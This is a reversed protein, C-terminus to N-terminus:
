DQKVLIDNAMDHIVNTQTLMSDLLTELKTELIESVREEIVTLQDLLVKKSKKQITESGVQLRQFLNLADPIYSSTIREMFYEEESSLKNKGAEKWLKELELLKVRIDENKINCVDINFTGKVTSTKVQETSTLKNDIVVQALSASFNFLSNEIFRRAGIDANSVSLRSEIETLTRYFFTGLIIKDYVSLSRKDLTVFSTKIGVIHSLILSKFNVTQGFDSRSYKVEDLLQNKVSNQFDSLSKFLDEYSVEKMYDLAAVKLNEKQVAIKRSKEQEILQEQELKQRKSLRM